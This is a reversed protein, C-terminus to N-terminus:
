SYHKRLERLMTRIIIKLFPRFYISKLGGIWNLSNMIFIIFVEGSSEKHLMFYLRVEFNRHNSGIVIEDSTSLLVRFYASPNVFKGAPKSFSDLFLRVLTELDPQEMTLKITHIVQYDFM